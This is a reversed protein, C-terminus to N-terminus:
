FPFCEVLCFRCPTRPPNQAPGALAFCLYLDVNRLSALQEATLSGSWDSRQLDKTLERGLERRACAALGHFGKALGLGYLLQSDIMTDIVEGPKFGLATLFGLDFAANHAVLTSEALVGWLPAPSLAFCDVLYTNTGCDCNSVTVAMLRLRDQRFDLGTTECDVATLPSGAVALCLQELEALDTILVKSGGGPSTTPAM